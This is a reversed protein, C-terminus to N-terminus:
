RRRNQLERFRAAQDQQELWADHMTLARSREVSEIVSTVLMLSFGSAVLLSGLPESVGLMLMGAFIVFWPEVASKIRHEPIRKFVRAM